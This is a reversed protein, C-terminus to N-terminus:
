RAFREMSLEQVTLDEAHALPMYIWLREVVNYQSIDCGAECAEVAMAATAADNVYALATGRYVSRPFQDLLILKALWGDPTDWVPDRFFRDTGERHIQECWERQAQLVHQDEASRAFPGLRWRLMGQQWNRRSADAATRLPGLWFDLVAEPTRESIAPKEGLTM